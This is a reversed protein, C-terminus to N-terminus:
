EGKNKMHRCAAQWMAWDDATVTNEYRGFEDRELSHVRYIEFAARESEMPDCYTPRINRLAIEVCHFMRDFHVSCEDQSACGGEDISELYPDARSRLERAIEVFCEITHLNASYMSNMRMDVPEADVRLGEVEARLADAEREKERSLAVADLAAKYASKLDARLRAVEAEHDSHLVIEGSRSEDGNWRYRKIKSM